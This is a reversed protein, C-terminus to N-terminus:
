RGDPFSASPGSGPAKFTVAVGVQYSPTPDNVTVELPFQFNSGTANSQPQGATADAGSVIVYGPEAGNGGATVFVGSHLMATFNWTRTATQNSGITTVLRIQGGTASYDVQDVGDVCTEGSPVTCSIFSFTTQLGPTLLPQTSLFEFSIGADAGTGIVKFDFLANQAQSVGASLFLATGALLLPLFVKRLPRVFSVVSFRSM